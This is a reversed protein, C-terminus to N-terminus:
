DYEPAPPPLPKFHAVCRPEYQGPGGVMEGAVVPVMRQSFPSPRGCVTCPAELREVEDALAIMRPLPPFPQGWADHDIGAVIVDCGVARFEWCVRVLERGFFQAEDIGLVEAHAAERLIQTASAVAM